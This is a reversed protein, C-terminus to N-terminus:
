KVKGVKKPKGVAWVGCVFADLESKKSTRWVQHGAFFDVRKKKELKMIKYQPNGGSNYYDVCLGHPALCRNMEELFTM